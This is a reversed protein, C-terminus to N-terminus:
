ETPPRTDPLPGSVWKVHGDTYAITNGGPGPIYGLITEAPSEISTMSGGAFVLVFSDAISADRLYPAIQSKWDGSNGPLQDDSDAALMILALATQKANSLALAKEAAAKLANFTDRNMTSLSRVMAVGRHIYAVANGAPSLCGEIADTSVLVHNDPHEREVLVVAPSKDKGTKTIPLGTQLLDVPLAKGAVPRDVYRYGPVPTLTGAAPNLVSWIAKQGVSPRLDGVIVKGNEAFEVESGAPVEVSKGIASGDSDVVTLKPVVTLRAGERVYNTERLVAFPRLPSPFAQVADRHGTPFLNRNQGSASVLFATAGSEEDESGIWSMTVIAKSSGSIWQVDEVTYASPLRLVVNAKASANGYVQFETQRTVPTTAEGTLSQEAALRPNSLVNRQVMLYSGDSSWWLRVAGAPSVVQPQGQFYATEGVLITERLRLGPDNIQATVAFLLAAIM